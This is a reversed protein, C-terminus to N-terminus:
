LVVEGRKGRWVVAGKSWCDLWRQHPNVGRTLAEPHPNFWLEPLAFRPSSPSSLSVLFRVAKVSFRSGGAVARARLRAQREGSGLIKQWRM